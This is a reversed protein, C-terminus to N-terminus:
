YRESDGLTADFLPNYALDKNKSREKKREIIIKIIEDMNIKDLLLPRLLDSDRKEPELNDSIFLLKDLDSMEDTGAVHSEIAKLIRNLREDDQDTTFIKKVLSASIRGHLATPNDFIEFDYMPIHNRSCYALMQTRNYIKGIDHLLAAIEAEEKSINWKKALLKSLKAVRISHLYKKKDKSLYKKLIQKANDVTLEM